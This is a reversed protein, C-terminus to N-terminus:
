SRPYFDSIKLTGVKVGPLKHGSHSVCLNDLRLFARNEDVGNIVAWFAGQASIVDGAEWFNAERFVPETNVSVNFQKM